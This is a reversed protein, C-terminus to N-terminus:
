IYPSCFIFDLLGSSDQKNEQVPSMPKRAGEIPGVESMKLNQLNSAEMFCKFDSFSIYWGSNRASEANAMFWQWQNQLPPAHVGISLFVKDLTTIPVQCASLYPTLIKVLKIICLRYGIMRKYWQMIGKGLCVTIYSPMMCSIPLQNPLDGRFPSLQEPLTM